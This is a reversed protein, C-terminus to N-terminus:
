PSLHSFIFIGVLNPSDLFVVLILNMQFAFIKLSSHRTRNMVFWLDREHGWRGLIEFSVSAVKM